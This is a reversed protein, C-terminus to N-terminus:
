VRLKAEGPVRERAFNWHSLAAGFLDRSSREAIDEPDVRSYYREVFDGVVARQEASLRAAVLARVEDLNSVQDPHGDLSMPAAAISTASAWPTHCSASANVRSPAKEEM